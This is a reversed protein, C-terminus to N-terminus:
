AAARVQGVSAGRSRLTLAAAMAVVVAVVVALLAALLDPKVSMLFIISLFLAMMAAVGLWLSQTDRAAHLEPSIAGDAAHAASKGVTAFRPGLVRPGLAAMAVMLALSVDIWPTTWGWSTFAMYVGSLLLVIPSLATVQRTRGAVAVWFRVSAVTTAGRVGSFVLLIVFNAAGLAIAGVIHLFLAYPYLTMATM